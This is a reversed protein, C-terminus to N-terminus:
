GAKRNNILPYGNSKLQGDSDATGVTQTTKKSTSFDPFNKHIFAVLFDGMKSMSDHYDPMCNLIQGSVNKRDAWIKDVARGLKLKLDPDDVELYYDQLHGSEQMLNRIREDMSIGISPVGTNMSLVRAHYRSTILLSLNRLISTMRYGDYRNSCFIKTDSTLTAKLKECAYLDLAEMGITLVVADHKEAFDDVCAAITKIYTDFKKEREPSQSFFYWRKYHGLPNERWDRRIFRYFDPVVPWWFPNIVSVGVIPKKGDWEMKQSLKKKMWEMPLATFSWATDTGLTANLKLKKMIDLSPQTRAIFHAQDCHTRVMKRVFRDMHGAEVGYAMCPKGQSKAIGAAEVFLLLLANSFKSKLCCGESLLIMHYESCVRLLPLFFISSVREQKVPPPFYNDVSKEDVVVVGIDIKDQGLLNYFQRTMSEVRVDSGTNQKGNYGVLLLKLKEGPQWKKYPLFGAILIVFKIVLGMVVDSITKM